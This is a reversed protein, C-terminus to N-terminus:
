VFASLSIFLNVCAFYVFLVHSTCLGSKEELRPSRSALYSQFFFVLVFLLALSVM